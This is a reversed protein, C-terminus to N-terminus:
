VCVCNSVCVCYAISECKSLYAKVYEGERERWFVHM